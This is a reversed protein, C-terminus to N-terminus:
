NNLLNKAKLIQRLVNYLVLTNWEEIYDFTQYIDTTTKTSIAVYRTHTRVDVDNWPIDYKDSLRIGSQNFHVNLISFPQKYNFTKIYQGVMESAYFELMINLLTYYKEHLKKVNIKYVSTMRIKIITETASKIDICYVRGFIFRYGRLWKIGFRFADVELKSFM